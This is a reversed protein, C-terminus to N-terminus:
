NRNKREVIITMFMSCEHFLKSSLHDLWRFSRYTFDPWLSRFTLGGSLLYTFPTHYIINSLALSPFLDHMKRVDRKFVIWPLAGNAGSLPGTNPITWDGEPIFPEHHFNQYVFKGWKSNAPEIMILKGKDKLTREVEKLFLYSDPLHHFTDIMFIGDLSKDAFPMDLASFTMDNDDLQLFDSTVINPALEKLFGGGSGLEVISKSTYDPIEQFLINYWEKYLEKLFYKSKIIERHEETRRPDDLSYKFQYKFAMM